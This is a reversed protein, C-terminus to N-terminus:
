RMQLPEKRDCVRALLVLERDKVARAQRGRSKRNGTAVAWENEWDGGGAAIRLAEPKIATVTRRKRDRM